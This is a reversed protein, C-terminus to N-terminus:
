WPRRPSLDQAIHVVSGSHKVSAAFLAVALGIFVAPPPQVVVLLGTLSMAGAAVLTAVPRHGPTGSLLSSHRAAFILVLLQALLEAQAVAYPGRIDTLAMLAFPAVYIGYAVVIVTQRSELLWQRLAIATFNAGSVALLLLAAIAPVAQTNASFSFWPIAMLLSATATLSTFAFLFRNIVTHVLAIDSAQTLWPTIVSHMPQLILSAAIGVVRQALALLAAGGPVSAALSRSLILALSTLSYSSAAGVLRRRFAPAGAEEIEDMRLPRPDPPPAMLLRFLLLTAILGSELAIVLALFYTSLERGLLLSGGVVACFLTGNLAVLLAPLAFDRRGQAVGIAIVSAADFLGSLGLTLYTKAVDDLSSAVIVAICTFAFLVAYALLRAMRTTIQQARVPPAAAVTPTIALALSTGVVGAISAGYAIGIQVSDARSTFGLVLVLLTDRGLSTVKSFGGIVALIRVTATSGRLM